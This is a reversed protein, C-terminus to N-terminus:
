VGPSPNFRAFPKTRKREERKVLLFCFGRGNLYRSISQIVRELAILKIKKM